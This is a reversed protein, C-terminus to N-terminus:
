HPDILGTQYGAEVLASVWLGRDTDIGIVVERPQEADEAV